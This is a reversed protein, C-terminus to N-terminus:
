VGEDWGAIVQGKGLWFRLPQGHDYSSDFKTGDTLWGTYQVKVIDGAEATAGTGKKVDWYQRGSATVIPKGTTPSPKGGEAIALEPLLALFIAISISRATMLDGRSLPSPLMM